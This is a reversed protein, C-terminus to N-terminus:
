DGYKETGYKIKWTMLMSSDLPPKERIQYKPSLLFNAKVFLIKEVEDSNPKILKQPEVDKDM